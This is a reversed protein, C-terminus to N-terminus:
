FNVTYNQAPLGRRRVAVLTKGNTFTMAQHPCVTAAEVYLVLFGDPIMEGPAVYVFDAAEADGVTAVKPCVMNIIRRARATAEDPGIYAVTLPRLYNVVRFLVRDRRDTVYTDFCYFPLKERLVRTIFYYAFPSHVSFGRSVRYRKLKSALFM